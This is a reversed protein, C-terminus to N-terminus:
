RISTRLPRCARLGLTRLGGPALRARGHVGSAHMRAGAGLHDRRRESRGSRRVLLRPVMAKKKGLLLRCVLHRLSQLESTHEETRAMSQADAIGPRALLGGALLGAAGALFERRNFHTM